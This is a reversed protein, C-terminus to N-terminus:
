NEAATSPAQGQARMIMAELSQVPPQPPRIPPVPFHYFETHVSGVELGEIDLATCYAPNETQLIHYVDDYQDATMYINIVGQAPFQLWDDPRVLPFYIYVYTGSELELTISRTYNLYPDSGGVNTQAVWVTYRTIREALAM